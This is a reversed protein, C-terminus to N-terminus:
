WHVLTHAAESGKCKPQHKKLLPVFMEVKTNKGCVKPLLTDELLIERMIFM